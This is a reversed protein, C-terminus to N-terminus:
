IYLLYTFHSICDLRCRSSQSVVLALVKGSSLALNQLVENGRGDPEQALPRKRQRGRDRAHHPPGSWSTARGRGQQPVLGDDGRRRLRAFSRKLAQWWLPPPPSPLWSRLNM